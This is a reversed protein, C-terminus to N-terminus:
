QGAPLGVLGLKQVSHQVNCELFGQYDALTMIDEVNLAGLVLLVLAVVVCEVLCVFLWICM